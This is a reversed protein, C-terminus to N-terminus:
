REDPSSSYRIEMYRGTEEDFTDLVPLTISETKESPAHSPLSPKRALTRDPKLMSIIRQWLSM